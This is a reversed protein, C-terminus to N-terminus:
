GPYSTVFASVRPNFEVEAEPLKPKSSLVNKSYSLVEGKLNLLVNSMQTPNENGQTVWVSLEGCVALLM